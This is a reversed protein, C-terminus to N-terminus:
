KVLDYYEAGSKDKDNKLYKGFEKVIKASKGKGNRDCYFRQCNTSLYELGEEINTNSICIKKLESMSKISELSGEFSCNEVNLEKLGTFSLLFDLNQKPIRSNDGIDLGVLKSPKRLNILFDTSTFQNNACNLKELKECNSLDLNTLQNSSCNLEKLKDFGELKLRGKLEQKSIDLINIEERRKGKNEQDSKRRCRNDEPYEKNL